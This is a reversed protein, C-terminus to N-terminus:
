SIYIYYLYIKSKYILSSPFNKKKLMEEYKQKVSVMSLSKTNKIINKFTLIKQEVSYKRELSHAYPDFDYNNLINFNEFDLHSNARKDKYPFSKPRIKINNVSESRLNLNNEKNVFNIKQNSESILYGSENNKEIQSTKVFLQNIKHHNNLNLVPNSSNYNKYISNYNVKDTNNKQPYINNIEQTNRTLENIDMKELHPQNNKELFVNFNQVGTSNYNQNNSNITNIKNNTSKNFNEKNKIGGMIFSSKLVTPNSFNNNIYGLSHNDNILKTNLKNRFINNQLSNKHYLNNSVNLSQNNITHNNNTTNFNNINMNNCKSNLTENFLPNFNFNNRNSYNVKSSSENLNNLVQNKPFNFSHISYNGNNNRTSNVKINNNQNPNSFNTLNLNNMPKSNIFNGSNTINNATLSFSNQIKLNNSINTSNNNISETRMTGIVNILNKKNIELFDNLSYRTSSFKESNKNSKSKSNKNSTNKNNKIKLKESSAKYCNVVNEIKNKSKTKNINLKNVSNDNIKLNLNTSKLDALRNDFSSYLHSIAQM